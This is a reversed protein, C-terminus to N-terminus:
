LAPMATPAPLGEPCCSGGRVQEGSSTSSALGGGGQSIIAKRQPILYNRAYGHHVKTFKGAGGLAEVDQLLLSLSGRM